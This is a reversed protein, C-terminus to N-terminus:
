NLENSRDRLMQFTDDVLLKGDRFVERLVPVWEFGKDTWRTPKQVSSEYESGSKWLAVRGKKSVKGHDTIPDKFVDRDVLKTYPGANGDDFWERVCVSSCKMAFKMTDRNVIQLLAGGMGFAINDASWGHMDVLVRLIACISVENIGDGWLVRVNNLVKYGKENKVSGFTNELINFMQPLVEVPDGSDPRIVVTAGSNQVEEKLESGWLRCADYINYSDSVVALLGDKKGFQNVMNRYANVENKRGWSTITSHESAPISFGVSDLPANYYRNAGIIGVVTDTGMFNILHGVAGLMASENSSVGRAGFDHLKFPLGSVDGSKELYGKIVQKISHSQTAVTTMYWVARLASTEIWTTLWFCEPDTNEITALVNKTPILLGEPAAKIVIPLYGAHKDLIHQWGARNFPEGVAAWFKEAFDIEEQTIPTMLYEKIYAQLGAFLTSDYIGGRSEIYSYVYETGPPYQKAMSVKYADVNVLISNEMKM